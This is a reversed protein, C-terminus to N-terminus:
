LRVHITLTTEVPDWLMRVDFPSEFDFTTVPQSVPDGLGDLRLGYSPPAVAGKPHNHLRFEGGAALSATSFRGPVCEIHPLPAEEPLYSPCFVLDTIAGSGPLIM